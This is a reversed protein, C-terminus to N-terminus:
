IDYREKGIRKKEKRKNVLFIISNLSSFFSFSLSLSSFLATLQLVIVVM